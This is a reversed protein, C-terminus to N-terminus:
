TNTTTWLLHVIHAPQPCTLTHTYCQQIDGLASVLTKMLVRPPVAPRSRDALSETYNWIPCHRHLRNGVSQLDQGLKYLLPKASLHHAVTMNPHTPEQTQQLHTLQQTEQDPLSQFSGLGTKGPKLLQTRKSLGERGCNLHDDQFTWM